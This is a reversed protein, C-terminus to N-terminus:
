SSKGAIRRCLSISKPYTFEFGYKQYMPIAPVDAMLVVDAGEPANRNLYSTIENMVVEELGEGQRSPDVALDVVQYYYGGDGIIRGMGILESHEDKVIVTFLSRSLVKDALLENKTGLGAAIRLQIYERVEPVEYLIQM